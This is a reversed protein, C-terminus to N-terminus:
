IGLASKPQCYCLEVAVLCAALNAGSDRLCVFLRAAACVSSKPCLSVSAAATSCPTPCGRAGLLVKVASFTHQRITPMENSLIDNSACDKTHPICVSPHSVGPLTVQYHTGRDTALTM